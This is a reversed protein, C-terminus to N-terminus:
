SLKLSYIRTASESMAIRYVISNEMKSYYKNITKLGALAGARVTIHLDEKEAAKNLTVTLKNIIPIVAHVLPRGMQEMILM